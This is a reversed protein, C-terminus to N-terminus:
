RNSKESVDDKSMHTMAMFGNEEGLLRQFRPTSSRSRYAAKNINIGYSVGSGPTDEFLKLLKRSSDLIQKQRQLRKRLQLLIM